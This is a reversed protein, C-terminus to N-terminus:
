VNIEAHAPIDIGIESVECKIYYSGDNYEGEIGEENEHELKCLPCLSEANIGYYDDNGDSYEDATITHIKNEFELSYYYWNIIEEQRSKIATKFLYSLHQASCKNESTNIETSSTNDIASDPGFPSGLIMLGQKETSIGLEEILGQEVIQNKDTGDDQELESIETQDNGSSITKTECSSNSVQDNGSSVTKIDRSSNSPKSSNDSSLNQDRFKKERISQIIEKSVQEKYTSDLFENEEKEELSITEAPIPSTSTELEQQTDSNGSATVEHSSINSEENHSVIQEHTDNSNLTNDTIDSILTDTTYGRTESEDCQPVIQKPTDNSNVPSHSIDETSIPKNRSYEGNNRELYVNFKSTTDLTSLANHFPIKAKAIPLYFKIGNERLFGNIVIFHEDTINIGFTICFKNLENKNIKKSMDVYGDICFHALKNHDNHSKIETSRWKGSKAMSQRENRTVEIDFEIPVQYLSAEMLRTIADVLVNESGGSVRRLVNRKIEQLLIDTINVAVQVRDVGREVWRGHSLIVVFVEYDDEIIQYQPSGLDVIGNALPSDYTLDNIDVVRIKELLRRHELTNADQLNGKLRNINSVAHLKWNPPEDTKNIDQLSILCQKRGNDLNEMELEELIRLLSDCDNDESQIDSHKWLEHFVRSIAIKDLPENRLFDKLHDFEHSTM